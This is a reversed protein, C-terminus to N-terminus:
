SGTWVTARSDFACHAMIRLSILTEGLVLRSYELVGPASQESPARIHGPLVASTWLDFHQSSRLRCRNGEDGSVIRRAGHRTAGELQRRAPRTKRKSSSMTRM